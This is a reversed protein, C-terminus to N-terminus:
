WLPPLAAIPGVTVDLGAGACAPPWWRHRHWPRPVEVGRDDLVRDAVVMAGAPLGDVLAGPSVRWRWQARSLAETCPGPPPAARRLGAGTRVVQASSGQITVARAEVRLPALVTLNPRRDAGTADRATRVYRGLAMVPFVLRYLHYNIYFDWPFRHRYVLARGLQRRAAPHRGALGGGAPRRARREGAALLALLAWATQSATSHGARALGRRRLLAPGRGVRRRPEPPRAAVRRGPPDAPRRRGRRGPGPGARGRRDRLRLQGGVPRVLLRRAGAADALWDVGRWSRRHAGPEDALMELVHATVDAIPIPSRASTASPSPPSWAATTTPTSPAGGGDRCQMGVTWAAARACAQDRHTRPRQPDRRLALVVEATDDIDPYNDNAFEFAWGGQPWSPAACRGTGGSASRRPRSGTAGRRRARPRGPGRRRRVPGRGGPRYGMRAVPVGRPAPGPRRPHRLRRARGPRGAHVPHDLPYGQLHLAMISYVVPAPHRGM